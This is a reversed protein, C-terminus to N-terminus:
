HLLRFTDRHIREVLLRRGHPAILVNKPDHLDPALSLTDEILRIIADLELRLFRLALLEDEAGGALRWFIM